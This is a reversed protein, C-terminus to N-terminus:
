SSPHLRQLRQQLREAGMVDGRFEKLLAFHMLADHYNPQLYLAKQFYREAEEYQSTAQYLTGLLLHAEADIAHTKLYAQCQAIAATLYGSDALERASQLNQHVTPISSSAIETQSDITSHPYNKISKASKTDVKNNDPLITKQASLYRAQPSTTLQTQEASISYHPASELKRFAFTFPQQVFSFRDSPVKGAESAGVFLLGTPSLLRNLTNFVRMCATPDLYILLNRCFIVDYLRTSNAFAELVNGQQFHVTSRVLPSVLYQPEIAQFYHTREVWDDGRFSHQGYLGQQAKLLAAQSIDIADIRFRHASLGAELLAIAISYPEEGTSCPLSLVRLPETSSKFLWQSRVYSILFDFPKRDRFFWTEPVVIQEVLANFEPQSVQLTQFYAKLDLSGCAIRREEVARAIKRDGIVTADLGIRQSLLTVITELVM